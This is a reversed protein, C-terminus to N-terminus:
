RVLVKRIISGIMGAVGQFGSFDVFLRLRPSPWPRRSGCSGGAIIRDNRRHEVLGRCGRSLRHWGRGRRRRLGLQRGAASHNQIHLLAPDFNGCKYSLGEAAGYLGRLVSSELELGHAAAYGTFLVRRRSGVHRGARAYADLETASGWGAPCLDALHRTGRLSAQVGRECRVPM